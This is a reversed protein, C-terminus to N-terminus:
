VQRNGRGGSGSLLGGEENIGRTVRRSVQGNPDILGISLAPSFDAVPTSLWNTVLM